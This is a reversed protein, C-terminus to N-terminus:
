TSWDVFCPDCIYWDFWLALHTKKDKNPGNDRECFYCYGMNQRRRNREKRKQEKWFEDSIPMDPM